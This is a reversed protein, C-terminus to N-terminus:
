TAFSALSNEEVEFIKGSWKPLRKLAINLKRNSTVLRGTNNDFLYEMLITKDSHYAIELRYEKEEILMYHKELIVNEYSESYDTKTM